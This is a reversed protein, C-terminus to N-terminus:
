VVKANKPPPPPIRARMMEVGKQLFFGLTELCNRLLAPCGVMRNCVADIKENHENTWCLALEQVDVCVGQALPKAKLLVKDV